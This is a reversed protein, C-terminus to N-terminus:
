AALQRGSHGRLGFLAQLLAYAALRVPGRTWWQTSRKDFGIPGVPRIAVTFGSARILRRLKMQHLGRQCVPIVTTIGQTRFFDAAQAWVDETGLHQGDDRLEVSLAPTHGDLILQRTVEWQAVDVVEDPEAEIIRLAAQGLRRNTPGPEEPRLAFSCAVLGIM